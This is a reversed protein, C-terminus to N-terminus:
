KVKVIDKSVSIFHGQICIFAQQMYSYMNANLPAAGDESKSSSRRMVLDPGSM